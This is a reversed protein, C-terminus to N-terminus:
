KSASSFYHSMVLLFIFVTSVQQIHLVHLNSFFRTDVATQTQAGSRYRGYALFIAEPSMRQCIKHGSRHVLHANMTTKWRKIISKWESDTVKRRSFFSGVSTVHMVLQGALDNKKEDDIVIGM